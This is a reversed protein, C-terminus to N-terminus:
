IGRSAAPAPVVSPRFGIAWAGVVEKIARGSADLARTEPLWREVGSSNVRSHDTAAPVVEFGVREFEKVARRMHVASTVLLVRKIKYEALVAATFEANQQTTRSRGEVVIAAPQVGLDLLLTRMADAESVRTVNPDSGGSAVLLSARSAHLLRAAHWTRDGAENLDPYLRHPGPPAVGGGLLVIAEAQPTDEARQAPYPAEVRQVLWESTVPMSWLWLWGVGVVVLLLALRGARTFAGLLAGLTVLVLATGLPSLLAIAAKSVAYPIM